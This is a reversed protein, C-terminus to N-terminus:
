RKHLLDYTIYYWFQFSCKSSSNIEGKRSKLATFKLDLGTGQYCVVAPCQIVATTTAFFLREAM